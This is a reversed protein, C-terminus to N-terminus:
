SQAEGGVLRQQADPKLLRYLDGTQSYEDNGQRDYRNPEVSAVRVIKAHRLDVAPEAYICNIKSPRLNMTILAVAVM